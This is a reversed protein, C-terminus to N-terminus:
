WRFPWYHQEQYLEFSFSCVRLCSQQESVALKYDKGLITFNSLHLCQNRLLLSGGSFVHMHMYQSHTKRIIKYLHLCLFGCVCLCTIFNIVYKICLNATQEKGGLSITVMAKRWQIYEMFLGNEPDLYHGIRPQDCIM